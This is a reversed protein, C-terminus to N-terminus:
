HTVARARVRDLYAKPPMFALWILSACVLGLPGVVLAGIATGAIEVGFATLILASASITAATLMAYGWLGVREAVVSDALGLAVRRKLMRHHWVSEGGSWGLIVLGIYTNGVWPGQATELFAIAGPGLMQALMAAAEGLLLAGTLALAWSADPRFVRRTFVTLGGLGFLNCLMHALLLTTRVEDPLDRGLQATMMLPYGLGASLFLGAGIALEPLERRRLGAILLRGGVFLSALVFAGGGIGAVLDLM